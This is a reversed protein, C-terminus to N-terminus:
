PNDSVTAKDDHSDKSAPLVRFGCVVAGNRRCDVQVRLGSAESFFAAVMDCTLPEEHVMAAVPCSHCSIVGCDDEWRLDAM